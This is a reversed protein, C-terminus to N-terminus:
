DRSLHDWVVFLLFLTVLAMLWHVITFRPYANAVVSALTALAVGQVISLLTLSSGTFSGKVQQRLALREQEIEAALREQEARVYVRQRAPGRPIVDGREAWGRRAGRRRAPCGEIARRGTGVDPAAQYMGQLKLRLLRGILGEPTSSRLYGTGR